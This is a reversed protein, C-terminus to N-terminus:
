QTQAHDSVGESCVHVGFLCTPHSILDFNIFMYDWIFMYHPNKTCVVHKIFINKQISYYSISHLCDLLNKSHECFCACLNQFTDIKKVKDGEFYSFDIFM